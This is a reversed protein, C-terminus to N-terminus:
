LLRWVIESSSMRIYLFNECVKYRDASNELYMNTSGVGAMQNKFFIFKNNKMLKNERELKWLSGDVMHCRQFDQINKVLQNLFPVFPMNKLVCYLSSKTPNQPPHRADLIM